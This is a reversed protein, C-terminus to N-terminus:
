RSSVVTTFTQHNSPSGLLWSSSCSATGALRALRMDAPVTCCRWPSAAVCRVEQLALSAICLVLVSHPRVAGANAVPIVVARKAQDWSALACVPGPAGPPGHVAWSSFEVLQVKAERVYLELEELFPSEFHRLVDYCGEHCGPHPCPIDMAANERCWRLKEELGDLWCSECAAHGCARNVHVPAEKRCLPCRQSVEEGLSPWLGDTDIAKALDDAERVTLVLRQPIRKQCLPEPCLIELQWRERSKPLQSLVLQRLCPDCVAHSCASHLRGAHTEFVHLDETGQCGVCKCGVSGGAGMECRWPPTQSPGFHQVSSSSRYVYKGAQVLPRQRAPTVQSTIKQSLIDSREQALTSSM